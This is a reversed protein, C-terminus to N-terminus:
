AQSLGRDRRVQLWQAVVQTQLYLLLAACLMSDISSGPGCHYKVQM